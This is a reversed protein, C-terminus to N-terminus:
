PQPLPSATPSPPSAPAPWASRPGTPSPRLCNRHCTSACRPHWPDGPHGPPRPAAACILCRPRQSDSTAAMYWLAMTSPWSSADAVM